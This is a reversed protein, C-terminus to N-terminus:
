FGIAVGVTGFFHSNRGYGDGCSINNHGYNAGLTLTGSDSLKFPVSVGVNYYTVGSGGDPDIRGLSASFDLSAGAPELPVSYGLQGEFTLVKITVDYFLYVGPSFGGASGTIGIYPEWTAEDAGGSTDLEPYYYLCVGTDISWDGQLPIGFGAYFDVENDANDVLPQASWIGATFAGSSVEVSPMLTGKAFQQGRFVYRSAYTFDVTVSYSSEVKAEQAKLGLGTCLAAIILLTKKMTQYNEQNYHRKPRWHLNFLYLRAKGVRGSSTEIVSLRM